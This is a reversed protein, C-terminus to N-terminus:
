ISGCTMDIAEPISYLASIEPISLKPENGVLRIFELNLISKVLESYRLVPIVCMTPEASGTTTAGM